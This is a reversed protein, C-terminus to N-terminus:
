QQYRGIDNRCRGSEPHKPQGSECCRMPSAATSSSCGSQVFTLEFAEEIVAAHSELPRKTRVLRYQRGGPELAGAVSGAAHARM